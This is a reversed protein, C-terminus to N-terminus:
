AFFGGWWLLGFSIAGACVALPFSHTGTRPKGDLAATALINLALLALLIGEPWGVNM